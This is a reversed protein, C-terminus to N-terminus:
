QAKLTTSVFERIAKRTETSAKEDYTTTPGYEVCPDTYTFPQKTWPLQM